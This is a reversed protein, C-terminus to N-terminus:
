ILDINHFMVRHQKEILRNMYNKIPLPSNVTLRETIVTNEGEEQFNFLMSIKTIRKVKAVIKVSDIDLIIFAKYTFNYIVFGIKVREYVKYENGGLDKMKYILPHVNVFKEIDTLYQKVTTLDKHVEFTFAKM